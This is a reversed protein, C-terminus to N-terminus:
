KATAPGSKWVESEYIRACPQGTTCVVELEKLGDPHAAVAKAVPDGAIAIVYAAHHAPDALAAEFAQEDNESVMSNLTRGAVQVAGVHASLAMMVPQDAPMQELSFALSRELAVRTTSNVKGEKLVLPTFYMMGLCNAVCLLAALPQWFRAGIRAWGETKGRLWVDLREAALAAYVALAPLMEMGYRANYYSHPWLQPIFIPVSGYAVSYVYFPLPVWLLLAYWWSANPQEARPGWSVKRTLQLWLGYLAAALVGFGTEWVSADVQSTRTYFLLAWGPNHWGRYHQGPPATRHEIQKASYPGRIFDLWDHEFHANYWFWLLPGAACLVTFITFAIRVENRLKAESKWWTLAFCCWVAAGVIWGDYRTFAMGLVLLGALVMRGKAAAARSEQLAAIGEMTVVVVWVFLALYLAETMATTALYLLNANLAYFLTAVFAWRVRMMRRTLRWMGAVSIAFSITSMPAAALGTQWLQMSHIFPLMLVHPLPLWVGGLQALGPYHSDIIRRAIALHAVADGYLLLYGKAYCILLAGFALMVGAAFAPYTEGRQVPRVAEPDGPAVATLQRTPGRGLESRKM